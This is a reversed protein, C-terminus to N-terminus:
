QRDELEVQIRLYRFGFARSRLMELASSFETVDGPTAEPNIGSYSCVTKMANDTFRLRASPNISTIAM